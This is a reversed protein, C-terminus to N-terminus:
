PRAGVRAVVRAAARNGRGLAVELDVGDCWAPLFGAAFADGAGTTDVVDVPVAPAHAEGQESDVALSGRSGLKVVVTAAASRLALAAQRAGDLAAATSEDHQPAPLGALLAAEEENALLVDVGSIWSLFRAAGTDALPGVSAVDVSTTMGRLRARDLASLGAMRSSDVMLMYGSLHLHRGAAFLGDPLDQPTLAQNAGPDPVMTREGDPMVLVICTGTPRQADVALACDVGGEELEMRGARGLLDDGIRGVFTTTHGDHALWAATNAAAGGGMVRVDAPTDTGERLAGPLSAVVDTMYQGVSVYRRDPHPARSM